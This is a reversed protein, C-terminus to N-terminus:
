IKENGTENNNFDKASLMLKLRNITNYHAVLPPNPYGSAQVKCWYPISDKGCVRTKLDLCHLATNRLYKLSHNLEKILYNHFKEMRFFLLAQSELKFRSSLKCVCLFQTKAVFGM